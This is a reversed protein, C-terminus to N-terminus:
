SPVKTRPPDPRRTVAAKTRIGALLFAASSLATAAVLRLVILTVDPTAYRDPGIWLWAYGMRYYGTSGVGQRYTQVHFPIWLCCYVLLLGYVVLVIRQPLNMTACFIGYLARSWLQRRHNTLYGLAPIQEQIKRTSKEDM